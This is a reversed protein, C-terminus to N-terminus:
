LSIMIMVIVIIAIIRIQRNECEFIWSGIVSIISSGNRRQLQQQRQQHLLAPRTWNIEKINERSAEFFKPVFFSLTLWHTHTHTHTNAQTLVKLLKILDRWWCRGVLNFHLQHRIIFNYSKMYLACHAMMEILVMTVAWKVRTQRYRFKNSGCNMWSAFNGFESDRAIQYVLGIPNAAWKMTRIIASRKLTNKKKDHIENTFENKVRKIDTHIIIGM